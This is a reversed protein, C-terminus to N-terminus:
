SQAGKKAGLSELAAERQRRRIHRSVQLDEDSKLAQKIYDKEDESFNKAEANNPVFKSSKPQYKNAPDLSRLM